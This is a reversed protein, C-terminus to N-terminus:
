PLLDLGVLCLWCEAAAVFLALQLSTRPASLVRGLLGLGCAIAGTAVAVGSAATFMDIPPSVM